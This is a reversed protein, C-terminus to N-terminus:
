GKETSYKTQGTFILVIREQIEHRIGNSQLCPNNCVYRSCTIDCVKIFTNTNLPHM